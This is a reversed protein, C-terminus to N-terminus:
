TNPQVDARYVEGRSLLAWARRANKNALAVVTVNRHKRALLRGLWSDPDPHRPRAFFSLVEVRRLRKHSPWRHPKNGDLASVLLGHKRQM